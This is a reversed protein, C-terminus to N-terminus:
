DFPKDGVEIGQVWPVPNRPARHISVESFGPPGPVAVVVEIDEDLGRAGAIRVAVPGARATLKLRRASSFSVEEVQLGCSTAARHWVRLRRGSDRRVSLFEQLKEHGKAAVLIGIAAGIMALDVWLM